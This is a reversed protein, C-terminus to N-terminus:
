QGTGALGLTRSVMALAKSRRRRRVGEEGWGMRMVRSASDEENRVGDGMEVGGEMVEGERGEGQSFESEARPLLTCTCLQFLEM